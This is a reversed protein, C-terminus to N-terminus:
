DKRSVYITLIRSTQQAGVVRYCLPQYEGDTVIQGQYYGVLVLDTSSDVILVPGPYYKESAECVKGWATHASVLSESDVDISVHCKPCTIM